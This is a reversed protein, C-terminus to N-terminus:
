YYGSLLTLLEQLDNVDSRFVRTRSAEAIAALANMDANRGYAIPVVIIPNRSDYTRELKDVVDQLRSCGQAECTDEGDSLLLVMRIRDEGDSMTDLVDVAIRTASFLSTSGEAVLFRDHYSLNRPSLEFGEEHRGTAHYLIAPRATEALELSDWITIIDSFSMLSVRNTAPMNEMLIQIGQRAEELKNDEAMSGSVDVLFIVDARKKIGAWEEQVQVVAAAEPVDLAVQPGELSVGNAETFPGGLEVRDNAPRYGFQMIQRQVDASLMWDIFHRAAIRQEDSVWSANVIGMPHEHYYTGGAPYIAVLREGGGPRVCPIDGQTGGSNICIVDTEEMALFDLYDPGRGVYELFDETRRSYHRVLSQIESVCEQVAEDEVMEATLRRGGVNNERACTYYQAITTSLGTSSHNPDAHGYFVGRRCDELGYACWGDPNEFVDIFDAWTLESRRKGTTREIAEVRSEWAAIVVPSLAVGPSATLDFLDRNSDYNALALWHSVSPAFITPRYINPDNPADFANVIGQMVTGSSGEVPDTGWVYIPTADGADAGTLPDTGDRWLQNYQRILEPMYEQSEPAYVISIDLANNLRSVGGNETYIEFGPPPTPNDSSAPGGIGGSCAASSFAILIMLPWLLRSRTM